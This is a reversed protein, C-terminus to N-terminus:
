QRKLIIRFGKRKYEDYEKKWDIMMQQPLHRHLLILENKGAKAIGVTYVVDSANIRISKGDIFYKGQMCVSDNTYITLTSDANFYFLAGVPINKCDPPM